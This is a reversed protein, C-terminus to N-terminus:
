DTVQLEKPVPPIIEIQDIAWDIMACLEAHTYSRTWAEHKGADIRWVESGNRTTSKGYERLVVRLEATSLQRAMAWAGRCVESLSRQRGAITTVQRCKERVEKPMRLHM